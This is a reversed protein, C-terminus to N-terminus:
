LSCHLQAKLIRCMSRSRGNSIDSDCSGEFKTDKLLRTDSQSYAAFDESAHLLAVVPQNSVAQPFVLNVACMRGSLCYLSLRQLWGGGSDM